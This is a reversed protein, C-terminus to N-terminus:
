PGEVEYVLATAGQIEVVDVTAGIEILANDYSRASWIEGALKIRGGHADVREVVIARRGVLAAIGTRANVPQRLHRKAVPRVVGILAASAAIAVLAQVLFPAGLMAAVGGVLAGGGLMLFTLDLTTTEVIGFILALALWLVWANDALWQALDGV